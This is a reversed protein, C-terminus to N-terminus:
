YPMSSEIGVESQSLIRWMRDSATFYTGKQVVQNRDFHHQWTRTERFIGEGQERAM